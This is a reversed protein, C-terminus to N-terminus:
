GANDVKDRFLPKINNYICSVFKIYHCVEFTLDLSLEHVVELSIKVADFAFIKFISNTVM